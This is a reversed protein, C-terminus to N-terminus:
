RRDHTHIHYIDKFKVEGGRDIDIIEIHKRKGDMEGFFLFEIRVQDTLNRLDNM